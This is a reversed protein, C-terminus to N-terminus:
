GRIIALKENLTKVTKKLGHIAFAYRYYNEISDVFISILDPNNLLESPTTGYLYSSKSDYGTFDSCTKVLNDRIKYFSTPNKPPKDLDLSKDNLFNIESYHNTLEILGSYREIDNTTISIVPTNLALCPLMTHLRTTIVCHASQYLTLWYKALTFRSNNSLSAIHSTSMKIVPRKTRSIINQYLRDSVDVALIYNQKKINKDPLLTLTLCGSFYSPVGISELYHRTAQDRAGVPAHAKLFQVSEPSKFTKTSDNLFCIHMSILLPEINPNKPPWNILNNDIAPEIYWGNMILRIKEKQATKTRDINDRDFYYDIRQLFRQAALSQIEDGINFTNYCFLGYKTSENNKSSNPNPM